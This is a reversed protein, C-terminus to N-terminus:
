IQAGTSTFQRIPIEGSKRSLLYSLTFITRIGKKLSITDYTKFM